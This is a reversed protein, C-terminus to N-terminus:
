HSPLPNAYECRAGERVQHPVLRSPLAGVCSDFEDYEPRGARCSRAFSVRTDMFCTWKSYSFHNVPIDIESIRM